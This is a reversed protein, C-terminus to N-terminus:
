SLRNKDIQDFDGVGNPAGGGGSWQWAIAYPSNSNIGGFFSACTTTGRLCWGIPPKSLSSNASYTWEYTNTITAASGTGFIDTWISPASYIGVKDSSHSTIYAAYGNIESRDITASIGSQKVKDSCPSTYVNNWGNDPVPSIGPADGPLEVDMFIVPYTVGLSKADGLTYSAQAEGWDYAETTSGNYHPDVGPGGMFWYVGTGVGIEGNDYNYDADNRDEDSFIIKEHCGERYAWNGAMGIYGGYYGGIAPTEYPKASGITIQTSDTGYWFGAPGDGNPGLPGSAAAHAVGGGVTVSTLLMAASAAVLFRAAGRRARWSGNM